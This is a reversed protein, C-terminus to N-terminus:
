QLYQLMERATSAEPDNPALALFREFHTRAKAADSQAYILGLMYHARPHSPAAALVREYAERAAEVEGNNYRELGEKAYTAVVWQPDQEVLAALDRAAGGADKLNLHAVYRVKRASLSGPDLEMAREANHLAGAFDGQNLQVTGLASYAPALEPDLEIAREFHERARRADGLRAADAGQNFARVAADTGAELRSLAAIAEAARAEDGMAQYADSLIQYARVSEPELELLRHAAAAAGAHDLRQLLLGALASHALALNPDIRVAERFHGEAAELEGERFALVGLNFADIAQNGTEPAAGETDPERAQPAAATLSALIIERRSVGGVEPKIELDLGQHGAKEFTFRYPVTADVFVLTARGKKDTTVIDGYARGDLTVTV